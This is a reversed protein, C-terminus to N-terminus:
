LKAIIRCNYLFNRTLYDFWFHSMWFNNKCNQNGKTSFCDAIVHEFNVVSVSSCPTFYKKITLKSCIECRTLESCTFAMQQLLREFTNQLINCLFKALNISFFRYHLEKQTFNFAKLLRRVIHSGLPFMNLTM